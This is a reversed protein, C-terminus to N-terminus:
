ISAGIWQIQLCDRECIETCSECLTCEMANLEPFLGDFSLCNGNCIDVCDECYNCNESDFLLTANKSIKFEIM